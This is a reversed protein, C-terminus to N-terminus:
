QNCKFEVCAGKLWTLEVKLTSDTLSKIKFTELVKLGLKFTSDNLLRWIGKHYNNPQEFTKFRGNKNLTIQYQSEYKEVSEKEVKKVSIWKKSLKNLTALSQSNVNYYILIYLLILLHKM